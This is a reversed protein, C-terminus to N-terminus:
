GAGPAKQDFGVFVEFEGPRTGEPISFSITKVASFYGIPKDLSVAVDIQGKDAQIRERKADTVFINVPLNVSGAKGRPGLLVRGSFGYKVTVKTGELSCERATQTIEGRHMVALGDGAKGPEYITVHHDRPWVQFRPCGGAFDGGVGMQNDAKAATLMKEKTLPEGPNKSANGGGFLGGGIGSTLSSMGCGGLMLVAFAAAVASAGFASVRRM